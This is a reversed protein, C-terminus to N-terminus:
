GASVLGTLQGRAVAKRGIDDLVDQTSQGSPRDSLAYV